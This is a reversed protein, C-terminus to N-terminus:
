HHRGGHHGRGGGHHGSYHAHGVNQCGLPCDHYHAPDTCGAPCAHYHAPDTCDLAGCGMSACFAPGPAETVEWCQNCHSHTPDACGLPCDHYHAPDTCDAPCAHYHTPDACNLDACGMSNLYVTKELAAAEQPAALEAQVAPAPAPAPQPVEYAEYGVMLPAACLLALLLNKM